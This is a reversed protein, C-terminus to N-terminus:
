NSVTPPSSGVTEEYKCWVFKYNGCDWIRDYSNNKMNEWESLSEDYNDLVDKLKHKQFKQRSYRVCEHKNFYYYNISKNDLEIMGANRYLDGSSYRKDAYTVINNPDYKSTFYKLMKQFGGVVATNIKNAFRSIEWEYSKDFRSKVFTLVSLLGGNQYLGIRVSCNSYGQLHNENLFERCTKNDIEKIECKRAYRIDNCKHFKYRLISKWIPKKFRWEDEFIHLLKYGSELCKNTKTLHYKHDKGSIFDSHHYLGNMEIGIKYKESVVDIEYPTIIRRNSFNIGPDLDKVFERLENEIKSVQGACHPCRHQLTIIGSVPTEWEGHNECIVKLKTKNNTYKQDPLYYIDGHIERIRNRIDEITLKKKGSCSPCGSQNLLKKPSILFEGHEKCIVLGKVRNNIYEFRSFDYEDYREYKTKLEKLFKETTKPKFGGRPVGACEPCGSGNDHHSKCTTFAGHERCIIISKKHSGHYEFKSYDYRDGHIKEFGKIVDNATFRVSDKLKEKYEKTKSYNDFGFKESLTKRMREKGNETAMYNTKGYRKLNTNKRIEVSSDIDLIRCENSCYKAFQKRADNFKVNEDCKKCKPNTSIENMFCYVMLTSSKRLDESVSNSIFAFKDQGILKILNKEKFCRYSGKYREDAIRQIERKIDDKM